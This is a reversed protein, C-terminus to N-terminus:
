AFFRVATAIEDPQALRKMPVGSVMAGIVKDANGQKAVVERLFPTDTPGPCVANATVGNRAVERAITKTFAIVGGKAGSYVSELSSGVRGADSGINIIRGWERELMGPLVSKTLRLAGKFNVELVRDWFEEDTDMFPKLDDWGANNVLIDVSGLAGYASAVGAHVSDGSTVDLEVAIAQGGADRIASATAEAEEIRLDAVVLKHGDAALAKSIAEGIGRAGGTVLAVRQHGNANMEM